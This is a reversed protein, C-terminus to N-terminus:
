VTAWTMRGDNGRTVRGLGFPPYHPIHVMWGHAEAANVVAARTQAALNGDHDFVISVEPQAVQFPAHM